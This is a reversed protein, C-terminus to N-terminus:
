RRLEITVFSPGHFYCRTGIYPRSSSSNPDYLNLSILTTEQAEMKASQSRPLVDVERDFCSMNGRVPRADRHILRAGNAGSLNAVAAAM